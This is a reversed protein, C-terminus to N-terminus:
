SEAGRAKKTSEIRVSVAISRSISVSSADVWDMNVSHIQIGYKDYINQALDILKDHIVQDVSVMLEGNAM